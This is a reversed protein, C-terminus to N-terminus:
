FDLDIVTKFIYLFHLENVCYSSYMDEIINFGGTVPGSNALRRPLQTHLLIKSQYEVGEFAFRLFWRHHPAVQIHFYADKLDLSMFWDGPGIHSLIQKLTIMRFSWKMLAYNLLRLDLVPRLGGDKKPVLFYRSYFGSERKGGRCTALFQGQEAGDPGQPYVNLRM